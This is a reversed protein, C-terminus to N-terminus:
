EFCIYKELLKYGVNGDFSYEERKIKVKTMTMTLIIINKKIGIDENEIKRVIEEVEQNSLKKLYKKITIEENAPCEALMYLDGNTYIVFEPSTSPKLKTSFFQIFFPEVTLWSIIDIVKGVTNGPMRPVDGGLNVTEIKIYEKEENPIYTYKENVYIGYLCRVFILVILVILIIKDKKRM